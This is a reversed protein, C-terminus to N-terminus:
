IARCTALSLTAHVSIGPRKATRHELIQPSMNTFPTVQPLPTMECLGRPDLVSASRGRWIPSHQIKLAKMYQQVFTAEYRYIYGLYQPPAHADPSLCSWHSHAPPFESSHLPGVTPHVFTPELTVTNLSRPFLHLHLPHPHLHPLSLRGGSYYSSLSSLSLSWSPVANAM